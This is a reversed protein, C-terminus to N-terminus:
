NIFMFENSNLLMRVANALGHKQAYQSVLEAEQADPPRALALLYLSRIQATLDHDSQTLREAVHESQRIVFRDNLMALAQLATVSVERKPAHQSADPCDLAQMFPDPVTRFVFRYVSRRRAAPSDVDFGAYDAEPTAHLAKGEIFQKASPGYMTLDLRGSIALIGDRVSEADLRARNMRWLYKNDGDIAAAIPNNASSQRYVSSTVILRHLRKLSGAYDDRFTTALWDILEPHTPPAGMKGLDNPTECIGRGFHYHWVRNVISRWTLPNDSQTIWKALAARRSSEDEPHALAFRAPIGAVCSLAGPAAEEIPQRIDGRRLVDVRRPKIAPKYNGQPEFNSAISYVMQQQPLKALAESVEEILVYRALEARQTENRQNVPTALAAAVSEPLKPARVPQAVDTVSLRFRGITHGAGHLQELLFTLKVGESWELPTKLEFVAVHSKSEQPHVGWATEAKGDLAKDISWGEQDFDATPNRLAIPRNAGAQDVYAKFESLHLNGNDARGPGNHPLSPDSLVELRIATVRKLESRGIVLYWDKEPRDGSALISGDELHKLTAGMTSIADSSRLVRWAADRAARRKEWESVKEQTQASSLITSSYTGAALESKEKLLRRREAGVKVDADYPRDIRDVGAFVAQLAYYDNQPIPDFKHNHCRACHVTTSVFTSMATSLMDDRDLYRAVQKDLTGDMIGMQSSEDWPGVANFATAVIAQPDDPCLADGAIQEEVFRAYPKDENFSRILYDRYPWANARFKDEDHGHSEAYHVVDMWHRAWREGYRPSALLRDVVNEYADPSPDALFAQVEQPTPPLGILDFTVRRILSRRDAEVSPSLGRQELGSLIFVDIASRPWDRRKAEPLPPKILPKLSWHTAQTTAIALSDPWVAGQDIWARLIRVQELTLPEGKPPMHVEDHAGAVYQILPSHLGDGAVIAGGISGGHLARERDDLRYDSKQKEPGHCGYCRTAFIPRVDKAFDVKRDAPPPIKSFDIDAPKGRRGEGRGEGPTGPSPALACALLAITAVISRLNGPVRRKM